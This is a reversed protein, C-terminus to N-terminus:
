RCSNIEEVAKKAAAAVIEAYEEPSEAGASGPPLMLSRSQNIMSTSRGLRSVVAKVDGGQAGVGPVLLPMYDTAKLVQGLEEPATAGVVLGCNGRGNWQRAATEAVVQYLPATGGLMAPRVVELSQFDKAGGNSTRCLVYVGKDAYELFPEVSDSGMYPSVTTADAGLRDFVYQAYKASSNGIDGRKADIIVLLGLSRAKHVFENVEPFMGEAESFALNIKVVPVYPAVARIFTDGFNVFRSSGTFCAPIKELDIDIGACLLSCKEVQKRKLQEFYGM